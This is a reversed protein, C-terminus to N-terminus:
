KAIRLIESAIQSFASGIDSSLAAYVFLGAPKNADYIPSLPDNTVRELFIGDPPLPLAANGV